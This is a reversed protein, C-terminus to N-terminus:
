AKPQEVRSNIISEMENIVDSTYAKLREIAEPHKAFRVKGKNLIQDLRNKHDKLVNLLAKHEVDKSFVKPDKITVTLVDFDRVVSFGYESKTLATEVLPSLTPELSQIRYTTPSTQKIVATETLPVYEMLAYVTITDFIGRMNRKGAIRKISNKFSHLVDDMQEPYEGITYEPLKTSGLYLFEQVKQTLKEPAEQHVLSKIETKANEVEVSVWSGVQFARTCPITKAMLRTFM